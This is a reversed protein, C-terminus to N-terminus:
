GPRGDARPQTLISWYLTLFLLFALSWAATSLTLGMGYNIADFGALLRIVGAAIILLYIVTAGRPLKLPRGTHGLSVRTMVGLLLTGVAGTGMAHLWVTSAWGLIPSLGKILLATVIWAYGLHLIWLLPESRVRWGRWLLLRWGNIAAAVLAAVGGLLPAASILDAPIMLAASFLAAREIGPSMVIGSADRGKMQLWNRSFAPTIRGGIVMMLIAILTMALSESVPALHLVGLHHLHTMLNATALLLIVGAVPYNRRNGHRMLTLTVYIGMATLFAMDIVLVSVAPLWASFWMALRGAIWLLVLGLLAKGRLPPAGTWNSIATLLFGAIAAPILGFLMEHAHWRIPSMSLPVQWGAFLVGMWVPVLLAAYIATLLFFPRFAYALMLPPQRHEAAIVSM